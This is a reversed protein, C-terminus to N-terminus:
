QVNKDCEENLLHFLAVVALVDPRRNVLILCELEAAEIFDLYARNGRCVLPM